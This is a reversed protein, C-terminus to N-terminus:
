TSYQAETVRPLSALDRYNSITTFRNADLIAKIVEFQDPGHELLCWGGPKLHRPASRIIQTLDRLGDPGARLAHSPEFLLERQQLHHDNDAVYPPNSVILDFQGTVAQYWDGSKFCINEIGLTIANRQALSLAAADRDTATITCQPREKAIALAIAGSGTGLDLVRMPKGPEILELAREVLLETEPRPVLVSNNVALCLSWFERNGTLYAVPEGRRRRRVLEWFQDQAAPELTKRDNALLWARDKDICHQLLVEADLDPTASAALQAGALALLERISDGM